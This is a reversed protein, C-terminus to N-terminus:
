WGDPDRGSIAFRILAKRGIKLLPFDVPVMKQEVALMDLLAGFLPIRPNCPLDFGRM